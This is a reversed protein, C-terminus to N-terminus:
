GSQQCWLFQHYVLQLHITLWPKGVPTSSCVHHPIWGKWLMISWLLGSADTCYPGKECRESTQTRNWLFHSYVAFMHMRYDFMAIPFGQVLHLKTAQFIMWSFSVLHPSRGAVLLNSSVRSSEVKHLGWWRNILMDRLDGTGDEFDMNSPWHNSERGLRPWGVSTWLNGVM